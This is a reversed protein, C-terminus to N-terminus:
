QFFGVGGEENAGLGRSPGQTRCYLTGVGVECFVSESWHRLCPLKRLSAFIQERTDYGRSESYELCLWVQKARVKEAEAPPMTSESERPEATHRVPVLKFLGAFADSFLEAESLGPSPAAGYAPAGGGM